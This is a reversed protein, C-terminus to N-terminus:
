FSIGAFTLTVVQYKVQIAFNACGLDTISSGIETNANGESPNYPQVKM